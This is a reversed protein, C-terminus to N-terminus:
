CNIKPTYSLQYLLRSKVPLDYPEFGVVGIIEEGIGSLFIYSLFSNSNFFNTFFIKISQNLFTNNPFCMCNRIIREKPLMRTSIIIYPLEFFALFFMKTINFVKLRIISMNSYRNSSIM